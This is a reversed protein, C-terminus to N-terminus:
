RVLSGGYGASPATKPTPTVSTGLNSGAATPVKKVSKLPMGGPPKVAPRKPLTFPTPVGSGSKSTIGAQSLTIKPTRLISSIKLLEEVFYGTVSM